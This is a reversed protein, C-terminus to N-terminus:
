SSSKAEAEPRIKEGAHIPILLRNEKPPLPCVYALSYYCYPNYANNFDMEYVNTGTRTLDIYRGAGYTDRGSTQDQFPVFVRNDASAFATLTLPQGQVTFELTGLVRHQEQTGTSTIMTVVPADPIPRLVAPVKFAPDIPYYVLPLVVAKRAEPVPDNTRQFEADKATRNAAVQLVKLAFTPELSEVLLRDAHDDFSRIRAQLGTNAFM